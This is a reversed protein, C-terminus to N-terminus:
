FCSELEEGGGGGGGCVDCVCLVNVGVFQWSTYNDVILFTEIVMRYIGLSVIQCISVIVM